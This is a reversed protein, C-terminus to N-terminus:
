LGGYEDSLIGRNIFLIFPQLTKFIQIIEPVLKDTSLISDPVPKSAILSKLKLYEIAPDDKSYGKPPRSLKQVNMQLSGFTKKFLSDELISQFEDYFYHIEKRANNLVNSEPMWLGGGAHSVGPEIHFYYAGLPSKKGGAQLVIGIQTKYPTKNKSFRVDRYIRFTTDRPMLGALTPDYEVMAQALTDALKLYNARFNDYKEKNQDFWIKNNNEKLEKLFQLTEPQLMIFECKFGSALHFRM